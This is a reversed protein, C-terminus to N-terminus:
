TMHDFMSELASTRSQGVTPPAREAPPAFHTQPPRSKDAESSPFFTHLYVACLLLDHNTRQPLNFKVRLPEGLHRAIEARRALAFGERREVYLSLTRGMSRSAIFNVPLLGALRIAEAETVRAAGYLRTSEEVVVMTGSALDGLRQFRPNCAPAILGFQYLLIPFKGPMVAPWADAFRLINRLIAQMADIPQGDISVVRLGLASERRRDM